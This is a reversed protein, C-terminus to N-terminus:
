EGAGEGNGGCGEWRGKWGRQVRGMGGLLRDASM